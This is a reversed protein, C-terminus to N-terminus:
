RITSSHSFTGYQDGARRPIDTPSQASNEFVTSNPNPTKGPVRVEENISHGDGGLDDLTIGKAGGCRSTWGSDM